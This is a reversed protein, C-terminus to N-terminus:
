MAFIDKLGVQSFLIRVFIDSIVTFMNPWLDSHELFLLRIVSSKNAKLITSEFGTYGSQNSVYLYIYVLGFFFRRM